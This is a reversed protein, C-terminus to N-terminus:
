DKKLFYYDVVFKMVTDDNHYQLDNNSQMRPFEDFFQKKHPDTHTANVEMIREKSLWQKLTDHPLALEPLRLDLVADSGLYKELRPCLQYDRFTM